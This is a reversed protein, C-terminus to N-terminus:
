FYDGLFCSGSTLEIIEEDVKAGNNKRNENVTVDREGKGRKM